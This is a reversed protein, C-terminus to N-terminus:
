SADNMRPSHTVRINTQGEERTAASGRPAPPPPPSPAAAVAERQGGPIHVWTFATLVPAQRSAAAVGSEPDVPRAPSAREDEQAETLESRPLSLSLDPNELENDRPCRRQPQRVCPARCVDGGSRRVRRVGSLSAASPAGLRATNVLREPGHLAGAIPPREEMVRFPTSVALPVSSPTRLPQRRWPASPVGKFLISCSYEFLVASYASKHETCGETLRDTLRTGPPLTAAWLFLLRLPLLLLLLMQCLLLVAIIVVILIIIVSVVAAAALTVVVM